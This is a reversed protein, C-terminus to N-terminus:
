ALTLRLRDADAAIADALAEAVPSGATGRGILVFEVDGLGHLPRAVATPPLEALGAPIQSRPFVAVGLGAMAAARLGNLSSSTCAVRWSHGSRRLVELVRTRTISPPPYVILPVPGDEPLRLDVAGTWALPERWM